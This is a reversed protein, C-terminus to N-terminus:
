AGGHADQKDKLLRRLRELTRHRNFTAASVRKLRPLTELRNELTESLRELEDAYYGDFQRNLIIALACLERASPAKEGTELESIRSQQIGILHACDAQTLGARRRALRLDFAFQTSM